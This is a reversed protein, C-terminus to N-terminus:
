GLDSARERRGRHQQLDYTYRLETPHPPWAAEQVQGDPQWGLHEYLGRARHNEELVWLIARDAGDEAIGELALQVAAAALGQGWHEPHVALHRLSRDDYAAYVALGSAGETVLVVAAPDDLVLRWRSLVADFPFPYHDPPFVHALAALNADRELEALALLDHETARRFMDGNDGYAQM